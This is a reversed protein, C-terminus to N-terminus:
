AQRTYHMPPPPFTQIKRKSREDGGYVAIDITPFRKQKKTASKHEKLVPVLSSVKTKHPKKVEVQARKSHVTQDTCLVPPFNLCSYKKEERVCM